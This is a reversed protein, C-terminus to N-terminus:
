KCGRVSEPHWVYSTTKQSPDLTITIINKHEPNPNAEGKFVTWTAICEQVVAYETTDDLMKKRFAKIIKALRKLGLDYEKLKAM